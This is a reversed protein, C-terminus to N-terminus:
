HLLVHGAQIAQQLQVSTTNAFTVSDHNGLDIVADGHLDTTILSQLQQVTQANAFHDLEVTDQQPNFNTITDAGVGPTFVFNDNGPGGITVSVTQSQVAAPNQGDTLSMNYSQTLTQGSALHVQDGNFDFEVSASGNSETVTGLSFQGLDSSSEPTLTATPAGSSDADAFTVTGADGDATANSNVVPSAAPAASNTPPPDTILTGGHGDSDLDLDGTFGALTLVAVAGHGEQVTIVADGDHEFYSIASRQVHTLDIADSHGLDGEKGAFGEITASYGATLADFVLEGYSPTGIGNDFTIYNVNTTSVFELIGGEILANGDFNQVPDDIQLIGGHSAELTGMNEIANGTHITLIRGTIDADIVGSAENVLELPGGITGEGQIAIDSDLTAGHGSGVIWDSQNNLTVIGAGDFDVTQAITLKSISDFGIALSGNMYVDIGNFTAGWWGEVDVVGSPGVLLLGGGSLETRDDLTLTTAVSPADVQIVGFDNVNVGDLTAGAGNVGYEIQLQDGNEVTLTGGSVKTGDDLTLIANPAAQAEEEIALSLASPASPGVTIDGYRGVDVDVGDLVAGGGGIALTGEDGISIMAGFVTSANDLTLTVSSTDYECDVNVTGYNIITVGSLTAGTSAEIDLTAGKDVFIIGGDMTTGADLILTTGSAVALNGSISVDSLTSVGCVTQILGGSSTELSGQSILVSSLDIVSGSGDAAFTGGINDIFSNAVLVNGGNEAEVLGDNDVVDYAISVISCSGDADILACVDNTIRIDDLTVVGGFTSGVHGGSENLLNAAFVVNGGQSAIVNGFNDLRSDIDLVSYCVAEMLGDNTITNKGTEIVLSRFHGGDADITGTAENILKLGGGGITGIGAIDSYSELLADSGGVGTIDDGPGDLTVVGSGGLEVTGNVALDSGLIASDVDIVGGNDITGLLELTSGPEVQVFGDVTVSEGSGDFVVTNSGHPEPSVIEIAGGDRTELTGGVITTSVLEVIAGSGIAAIVGDGQGTTRDDNTVTVNEFVVTSHDLAEITGLNTVSGSGWDGIVIRSHDEAAVTGENNLETNFLDIEAHHSAAISAGQNNDVEASDIDIISGFEADLTAGAENVVKGGNIGIFGGNKAEIEGGPSSGESSSAGAENVITAGNFWIAGSSDASVGGFNDLDTDIFLIASGFGTSEIEGQATEVGASNTGPENTVTGSHFFKITGRDEATVAGGNDLTSGDEFLVLSGDGISEIQGPAKADASGNTVSSGDIFEVKAGDKATVIGFNKLDSDDLSVVSGSGNSEIAGLLLTSESGGAAVAENTVLSEFFKVLGGSEAAILGFNGVLVFAPSPNSPDPMFEVVTGAGQAIIEGASEVISTGYSTFTPPDGQLLLTGAVDLANTVTLGGGTIDLEGQPLGGNQAPGDITLSFFTFNENYQSIGTLIVVIDDASTPAAGANWFSGNPFIQNNSSSWIFVNSATTTTPNILNQPNQPYQPYQTGPPPSPQYNYTHPGGFGPNEPFFNPPVVPLPNDGSGPHGGISHPVGLNLLETLEQIIGRGIDSYSDTIPLTTVLPREGPRLTFITMFNTQSITTGVSLTGDPNRLFDDWSGSVTTGPDDYITQWFIDNGSADKGQGMVGTTGRIGMTAVPTEIKMDGSHAVKGAFFGFTGTVYTFLASNSNGNPDYSYETLAMRTNPLLELATGDPFTLGCKSDAGTVVVDSKYVVDGVNLTVSVGNHLVTVTGVVKQVKGISDPPAAAQTQTQAQAYEHPAPSGALLEVTHSSLQAGNPAVLAPPHESAFYGAVVHHRGDHGTLVLDLGARHFDGSFLLEADPVVIANAHHSDSHILSFGGDNNGDEASAHFKM